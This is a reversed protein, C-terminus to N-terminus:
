QAAKRNYYFLGGASALLLFSSIYAFTSGIDHSYPEFVFEIEGNGAPIPLGRLLYDVELIEIEKGNVFAKWGKSYYIESFVGFQDSAANYTYKLKNPRYSELKLFDGSNRSYQEGKTQNSVVSIAVNKLDYKELALIASDANPVVKLENVFWANGNANPNEILVQSQGQGSNVVGIVYKANLMNIVNMQPLYSNAMDKGGQAIAQQMTYQEQGLHFDILEQYKKMKAGHYGGLTKHFYATQADADLRATTNLVRYHTERMLTSFQVSETESQSLRGVQGNKKQVIAMNQQVLQQIAPKKALERKFIENDVAGAAYPTALKEKKDWSVFEGAKTKENNVYRKDNMWLDILVLATLSVVVLKWQVKDKLFLVLLIVAILIFKLSGFASSQFVDVRYDILANRSVEISQPNVQGAQQTFQIEENASTFSLFTEPTFSIALFVILFGGIFKYLKNQHAVFDAKRAVLEHLFLAALLPFALEVLIMIITVARFKNYMPFYDIFLDTFWMLNKGWSLLIALIAIAFIPWKLSNKVFFMALFALLFVIAGIYVSGSTGPQDGWYTNIVNGNKQYENVLYNFFTPNETRLREIEEQDGLVAGSGPGKADPILLSFTEQKGYSWRTIYDRDLGNKAIDEQPSNKPSITLESKGRTSVKSYEYTSYLNGFNAMLAIVLGGILYSSTKIFDKIRNSKAFDILFYVGLAIVLMGLYYTVQLHNVYIEISMFFAVILAGLFPNKRYALIFGGIVPAMYAIAFAKSNHGAEIIIFFYSSFGFAIAGFVSIWPSIGLCTLLIYFGIMYLFTVSIPIPMIANIGDHIYSFINGDYEVRSTQYSPMGAFMNGQWLPDEDFIVKHTEIEQSMGKHQSIDGQKVRYGQMAPYYYVAALLWFLGIALIHPLYKKIEFNM